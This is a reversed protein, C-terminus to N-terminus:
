GQAPHLAPLSVRRSAPAKAVLGPVPDGCRSALCGLPKFTLGRPTRRTRRCKALRSSRQLQHPNQPPRPPHRRPPQQAPPTRRQPRPRPHTAQGLLRPSRTIRNTHLPGPHAPRRHAPHQPHVPGPRNQQPRLRPTIPSSGAHNKRAKASAYRGPRRRVRRAGPRRQHDRHRAPVPLDRRGPAASFPSRFTTASRSGRSRSPNLGYVQYGAAALAQVWLGRGTEIGVAVQGPEGDAGLHAVILEHLRAIGAAGEPLWSAARRTRSRWM